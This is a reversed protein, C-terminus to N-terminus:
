KPSTQSNFVRTQIENVQSGQPPEGQFPPPSLYAGQLPAGPAPLTFPSSGGQLPISQLPTFPSNSQAGSPTFPSNSQQFSTDMPQLEEDWNAFPSGYMNQSNNNNFNM